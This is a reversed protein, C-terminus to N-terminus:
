ERGARCLGLAVARGVTQALTETKLRGKIHALHMRVTSPKIGLEYAVEKLMRGAVLLDLVQKQRRSLHVNEPIESQSVIAAHGDQATIVVLSGQQFARLPPSDAGPALHALLTGLPAPLQGDGHNAAQILEAPPMDVDLLFMNDNGPLFLLRTM